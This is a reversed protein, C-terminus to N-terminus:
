LSKYSKNIIICNYMVYVRKRSEYYKNLQCGHNFMNFKLCPKCNQSSILYGLFSKNISLAKPSVALNVCFLFVCAFM